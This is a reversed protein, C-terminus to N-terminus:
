TNKKKAAVMSSVWETPETVKTNICDAQISDLSQKVKDIIGHPIRPPPKIIPEADSSLKMKYTVPLCGPKDNLVDNYSEWVDLPIHQPREKNNIEHVEPHLRLLKLNFADPLGLINKARANVVHFRLPVIDNSINCNLECIGLTKMVNNSFSVLNAKQSGDNEFPINLAKLTELSIVNWKGDPDIKLELSKKFVETTLHIENQANPIEVSEIVFNQMLDDPDEFTDDTDCDIEHMQNSQPRFRKLQSSSQQKRAKRARVSNVSNTQVNPDVNIGKSDIDALEYM